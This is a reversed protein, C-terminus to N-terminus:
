RQCGLISWNLSNFSNSKEGGKMKLIRDTSYAYGVVKVIM